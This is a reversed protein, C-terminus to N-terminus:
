LTIIQQSMSIEPLFITDKTLLKERKDKEEEDEEQQVVETKLLKTM